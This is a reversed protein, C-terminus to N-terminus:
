TIIRDTLHRDESAPGAEGSGLARPIQTGAAVTHKEEENFLLISPENVASVKLAKGVMVYFKLPHDTSRLHAM